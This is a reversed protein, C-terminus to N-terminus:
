NGKGNELYERIAQHLGQVGLLSCHKKNEPIGGLYDVVDDDTINLLAEVSKGIAIETLASSTTIAGMCGYVLYKLDLVRGKDIKAFLEIFDGCKSDGVTVHYCPEPLTGVNRPNLFHDMLKSFGEEPIGM